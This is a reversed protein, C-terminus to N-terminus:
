SRLLGEHRCQWHAGHADDAQSQEAAGDGGPQATGAVRYDTM